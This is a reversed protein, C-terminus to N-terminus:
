KKNLGNTTESLQANRHVGPSKTRPAHHTTCPLVYFTFRSVHFTLPPFPNPISMERQVRFESVKTAVKTAVKTSGWCRLVSDGSVPVQLKQCGKLTCSSGPRTEPPRKALLGFRGGAVMQLGEPIPVEPVQKRGAASSPHRAGPQEPLSSVCGPM